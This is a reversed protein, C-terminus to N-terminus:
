RRRETSPIQKSFLITSETGETQRFVRSDTAACSPLRARPQHCSKQPGSLRTCAQPDLCGLNKCSAACTLHHALRKGPPKRTAALMSHYEHEHRVQSWLLLWYSTCSRRQMHFQHTQPILFRQHNNSVNSSSVLVYACMCIRICICICICIGICRSRQILFYRRLRLYDPKRRETASPVLLTQVKLSSIPRPLGTKKIHNEYRAPKTM